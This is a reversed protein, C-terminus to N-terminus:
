VRRVGDAPLAAVVCREDVVRAKRRGTHQGRFRLGVKREDHVAKRPQRGVARRDDDAEGAHHVATARFLLDAFVQDVVVEDVADDLQRVVQEVARRDRGADHHQFLGLPIVMRQKQVRGLLADLDGVAVLEGLGVDLRDQRGIKVAGVLGVKGSKDGVVFNGLLVIVEGDGGVDFLLVGALDNVNLLEIGLDRLDYRPFLLQPLLDILDHRLNLPLTIHSYKFSGSVHTENIARIM